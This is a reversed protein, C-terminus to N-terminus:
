AIDELALYEVVHKCRSLPQWLLVLLHKLACSDFLVFILGHRYFFPEIIMSARSRVELGGDILPVVFVIGFDHVIGDDAEEERAEFSIHFLVEVVDLQQLLRQCHLM